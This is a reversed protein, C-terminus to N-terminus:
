GCYLTPLSTLLNSVYLVSTSKGGKSPQFRTKTVQLTPELLRRLTPPEMLQWWNGLKAIEGFFKAGLPPWVSQPCFISIPEVTDSGSLNVGHKPTLEIMTQSPSRKSCLTGTAIISSPGSSVVKALLSM